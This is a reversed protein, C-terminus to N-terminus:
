VEEIVDFGDPIPNCNRAVGKVGKVKYRGKFPFRRTHFPLRGHTLYYKFPVNMTVNDFLINNMPSSANGMLVGPSLLPDEILVNRITINEFNTCGQTPCKVTGIPYDLDCNGGL